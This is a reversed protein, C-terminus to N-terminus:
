GPMTELRRTVWRWSSGALYQYIYLIVPEKMLSSDNRM